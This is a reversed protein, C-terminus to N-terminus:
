VRPDLLHDRSTASERETSGRLFPTDELSIDFPSPGNNNPTSGNGNCKPSYPPPSLESKAPPLPEPSNPTLPNPPPVHKNGKFIRKHAGPSLCRNINLDKKGLLWHTEKTGKGKVTIPGRYQFTFEPDDKLIVHTDPSVQIKLATFPLLPM